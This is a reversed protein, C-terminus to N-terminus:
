FLLANCPSFFDSQALFRKERLSVHISTVKCRLAIIYTNGPPCFFSGWVDMWCVNKLVHATGFPSSMEPSNEDWYRTDNLWAGFIESSPLAFAKQQWKIYQSIWTQLSADTNPRRICNPLSDFKPAWLYMIAHNHLSRSTSQLRLTEIISLFHAIIGWCIDPLGHTTTSRKNPNATSCGQRKM